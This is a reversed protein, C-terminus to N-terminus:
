RMWQGLGSWSLYTSVQRASMSARSRPSTRAMPTEFKRGPCMSRSSAAVPTSGATLWISLWGRKGLVPSM